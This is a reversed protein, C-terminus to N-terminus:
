CLIRPKRRVADPFKKKEKQRQGLEIRGKIKAKIKMSIKAMVRFLRALYGQCSRGSSTPDPCFRDTWERQAKANKLTIPHKVARPKRRVADPFKKKEKQRQGL